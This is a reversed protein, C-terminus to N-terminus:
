PAFQAADFLAGLDAFTGSDLSLSGVGTRGAISWSDTWAVALSDGAAPDGACLVRGVVEGAVELPYASPAIHCDSGTPDGMGRRLERDFYADATSLEDFLFYTVLAEAGGPAPIEFCTTIAMAGTTFLSREECSGGLPPIHALLEDYPLGSVSARASPTSVVATSPPPASATPGSPTTPAPAATGCAAILLGVCLGAAVRRM